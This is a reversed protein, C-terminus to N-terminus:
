PQAESTVEWKELLGVPVDMRSWDKVTLGENSRNTENFIQWAM